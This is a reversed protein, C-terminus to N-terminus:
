KAHRSRYQYAVILSKIGFAPWSTQLDRSLGTVATALRWSALTALTLGTSLLVFMWGALRGFDDFEKAM